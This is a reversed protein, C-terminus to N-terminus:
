LQSNLRSNPGGLRLKELVPEDGFNREYRARFEEISYAPPQPGLAELGFVASVSGMRGARRGPAGIRLGRVLGARYADGVGTPDIAERELRPPRSKTACGDDQRRRGLDDSGDAGHTVVVVPIREELEERSLGTKQTLIGFEYDNVILIAAGALGELLDEGSLRAM